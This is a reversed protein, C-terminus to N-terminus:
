KKEGNLDKIKCKWPNTKLLSHIVIAQWLWNETYGNSFINNYKIIRVSDGVKFKPDKHNSETEETLSSHHYNNSYEDLLKNVYGFYSKSENAIFTKYIKVENHTLYMLIDKNDLWKHMYYNYCKRRQDAQLKNPQRKSKNGIEIYGNAVTKAKKDKLPKVWAYKTFVDIVCSFYKIVHSKIIGNWSFRCGM